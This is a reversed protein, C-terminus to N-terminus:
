NRLSKAKEAGVLAPLTTLQPFLVFPPSLEETEEWRVVTDFIYLLEEAKAATLSLPETTRPYDLHLLFEQSGSPNVVIEVRPLLPARVNPPADVLAPEAVKEFPLLTM